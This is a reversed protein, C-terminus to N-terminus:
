QLVFLALALLAFLLAFNLALFKGMFGSGKEGAANSYLKFSILSALSAIPTGLGGINVGLLLGKANETFGSLLLTAPVNSIVQSTAAGILIENNELIGGLFTDVAEIRAINGSFIFFFVFTLLLFFDAKLLTKRDFILLVVIVAGLMYWWEFVKCVVLLCVAFLVIYLVLLKTNLTEKEKFECAIKKKPLLMSLVILVVLSIGWVPLTTLIFDTIPLGYYSYIFINQPNGVPTLISGLNAAVTQLVIV